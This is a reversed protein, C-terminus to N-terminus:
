KKNGGIASLKLEGNNVKPALDSSIMLESRYGKDKTRTTLMFNESGDKVMDYLKNLEEKSTLVIEEKSHVVAEFEKM